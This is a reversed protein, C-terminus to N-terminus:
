DIRVPLEVFHAVQENKLIAIVEAIRPAAATATTWVWGDATATGVGAVTGDAGVYYGQGIGLYIATVQASTGDPLTRVESTMTIERNFKNIENLM